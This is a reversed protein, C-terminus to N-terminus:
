LIHRRSKPAQDGRVHCDFTCVSVTEDGHRVGELECDSLLLTYENRISEDKDGLM